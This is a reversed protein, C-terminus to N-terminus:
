LVVILVCCTGLFIILMCSTGPVFDTECPCFDGYFSWSTFILMCCTECIWFDARLLNWSCFNVRLWNWSCFWNLSVVVFLFILMSCTERVVNLVSTLLIGHLSFDIHLLNWSFINARLWNWSCFDACLLNWFCFWNQSFFTLTCIERLSSVFYFLNEWCFDSCLYVFTLACFIFHM